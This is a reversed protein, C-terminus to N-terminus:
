LRQHLFIHAQAYSGKNGSSHEPVCARHGFTLSRAQKHGTSVGTKDKAYTIVKNRHGQAGEPCPALLVARVHAASLHDFIGLMYADYLDYIKKAPACIKPTLLHLAQRGHSVGTPTCSRLEQGQEKSFDKLFDVIEVIEIHM